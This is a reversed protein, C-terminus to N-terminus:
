KLITGIAITDSGSRLIINRLKPVNIDYAIERELELLLHARGDKIFAISKKSIDKIGMVTFQIMEAHCHLIGSFGKSLLVQKRMVCDVIIRKSSIIDDAIICGQKPDQDCSCSFSVITGPGASQVPQGLIKLVSIKSGQPNLIYQKNNLTGSLVKGTFGDTDLKRSVMFRLPKTPDQTIIKISDLVKLFNDLPDKPIFHYEFFGIYKLIVNLRNVVEDVRICKTEEPLTDIKTLCVLVKRIGTAFVLEAHEITQGALGAEFEGPKVSVVLIAIDALNAAALMEPVKTKHGPSDLINYIRTETEFHEYGFEFTRSHGKNDREETNTDLVASLSGAKTIDEDTIVRTHKLISATLTSKGADVHGITIISINSKEEPSNDIM